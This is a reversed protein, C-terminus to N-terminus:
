FYVSIHEITVLQQQPSVDNLSFYKNEKERKSVKAVESPLEELPDNLDMALISAIKRVTNASTPDNYNQITRAPLALDLDVVDEIHWRLNPDVTKRRRAHGTEPRRLGQISVRRERINDGDMVMPPITWTEMSDDWM